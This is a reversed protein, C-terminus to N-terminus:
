MEAKPHSKAQGCCVSRVTTQLRGHVGQSNASARTVDLRQHVFRIRNEWRNDGSTLKAMLDAKILQDKYRETLM